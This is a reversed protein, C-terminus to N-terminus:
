QLEPACKFGLKHRIFADSLISKIYQLVTM